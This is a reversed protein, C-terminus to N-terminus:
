KIDMRVQCVGGHACPTQACTECITVSHSEAENILERAVSGVKFMSICGVFGQSFGNLKSIQGFDPVGGIYLPELLDLGKFKGPATGTIEIQDNVKLVGDRENRSIRVTHWKNMQIPTDSRLLTVGAGLEYRFEVRGDSLGLSIFDGSHQTQGNYLILGNSQEPRFSIQVDFALYADPLTPMVMYSTPQQPFYPVTGTVVLITPIEITM